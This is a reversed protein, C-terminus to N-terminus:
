RSVRQSLSNSDTSLPHQPNHAFAIVADALHDLPDILCARPKLQSAICSFETCALIVGDVTQAELEDLFTEFKRLWSASFDGSKIAEIIPLLERNAVPFVAEIGARECYQRYLGTEDIVPSGVIGLRLQRNPKVVKFVDLSLAVMDLFPISIAQTVQPLYYHASHCPMALLAAGASQLRLAMKILAQEPTKGDGDLLAAVRSPVQPNSDILLHLHDQDQKAPTRHIVRQYFEASAAPGMGGLVGVIVEDM